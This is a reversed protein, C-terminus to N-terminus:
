NGPLSDYPEGFIEKLLQLFYIVEINELKQLVLLILM